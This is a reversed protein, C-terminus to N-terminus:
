FTDEIEREHRKAKGLRLAKARDAATNPANRPTWINVKHYCGCLIVAQKEGDFKFLLRYQRGQVKFGMEHIGENGARGEMKHRYSPWERHDLRKSADKLTSHFFMQVEESQSQVWSEIPNSGDSDLWDYFTWRGSRSFPIVKKNYQVRAERSKRDLLKQSVDDERDPIKDCFLLDL